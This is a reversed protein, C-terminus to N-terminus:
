PQDFRHVFKWSVRTNPFTSGLWEVFGHLQSQDVSGVQISAACQLSDFWLDLSEKQLRITARDVKSKTDLRKSIIWAPMKEKKEKKEGKKSKYDGILEMLEKPLLASNNVLVTDYEITPISPIAPIVSGPRDFKWEYRVTSFNKAKTFAMAAAKFANTFTAMSTGKTTTVVPAATTSRNKPAYMVLLIFGSQVTKTIMSEFQERIIVEDAGRVRVDVVDVIDLAETKNRKQRKTRTEGAIEEASQM